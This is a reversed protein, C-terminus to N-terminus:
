RIARAAAKWLAWPRDVQGETSAMAAQAEEASLYQPDGLQLAQSQIRANVEAYVARYVALKLSPGVTTSGHGRMLVCHSPGLVQALARGLRDDRVLLDTGDGAVDRIEFVPAGGGLFGSMHCVPRLRERRSVTFPVVAPSHSHVVAMVDPRARYIAGHIFRELYVRRDGADVPTGDLEFSVIDERCVQAPAMNRALLFHAPSRDHRVSVHGFADLVGQMGLIHNADVLDDILAPDASSLPSM